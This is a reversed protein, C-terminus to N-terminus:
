GRKRSHAVFPCTAHYGCWRPDCWWAGPTTPPFIGADVATTIANIRRSLAVLDPEGRASDVVQRTTAKSTQVVTDLRVLSPPEGQVAQYAAAYVTLQVSDDADAQTKARKATKFDVVRRQDDALDLVALLDRPGPLEVRVQEEVWVPQYDPAQQRAHVEALDAVDDKAQGIIKTAGVSEEDPDLLVGGSLEAEFAAVAADVIESTPLDRHSEVKQRFNTEAARHIGTGKLMAVGPPIKEGEIYRRRYAEPCKSYLEMQTASLHPKETANM